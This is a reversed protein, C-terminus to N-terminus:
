YTVTAGSCNRLNSFTVVYKGYAIDNGDSFALVVDYARKDKPSPQSSVPMYELAESPNPVDAWKAVAADIAAKACHGSYRSAANAQVSMALLMTFLIAKNM